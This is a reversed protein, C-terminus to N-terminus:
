LDVSLCVPRLISTFGTAFGDGFDLYSLWLTSSRSVEELSVGLSVKADLGERGLCFNSEKLWRASLEEDERLSM